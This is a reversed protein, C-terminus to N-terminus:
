VNSFPLIQMLSDKGIGVYFEVKIGFPMVRQIHVM